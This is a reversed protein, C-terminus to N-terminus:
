KQNAINLILDVEGRTLGLSKAIEVVNTGGRAMSLAVNMRDNPDGRLAPSLDANTQYKRSAANILAQFEPPAPPQAPKVAATLKSTGAPQAAPAPAAQAPAAAPNTQALDKLERTVSTLRLAKERLAPDPSELAARRALSAVYATSRLLDVPNISDSM